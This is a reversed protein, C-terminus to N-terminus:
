GSVFDVLTFITEDDHKIIITVKQVGTDTNNASDTNINWPIGYVMNEIINQPQTNSLTCITYKYIEPQTFEYTGVVGDIGTNAASIYPSAKVAEMQDYALSEATTRIDALLVAKNATVMSILFTVAVLGLLLMAIIAEILIFGKEKKM